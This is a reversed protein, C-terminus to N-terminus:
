FMFGREIDEDREEPMQQILVREPGEQARMTGELVKDMIDDKLIKLLDTKRKQKQSQIDPPLDNIKTRISNVDLLPKLKDSELITELAEQRKPTFQKSPNDVLEDILGVAGKVKNPVKVKLFKGTRLKTGVERPAEGPGADEDPEPKRAPEIVNGDEDLKIDENRMRQMNTMLNLTNQRFTQYENEISVKEIGSLKDYEKVINQFTKQLEIYQTQIM